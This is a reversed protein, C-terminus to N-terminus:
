QKRARRSRRRRFYGLNFITVAKCHNCKQKFHGASDSYLTSIYRGCHPCHLERETLDLSEIYSREVKTRLEPPMPKMRYTRRVAQQQM